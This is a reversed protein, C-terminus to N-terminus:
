ICLIAFTIPLIYKHCTLHTQSAFQLTTHFITSYSNYYHMLEPISQDLLYYQISQFTKFITRPAGPMDYTAVLGPSPMVSSHTQTTLRHRIFDSQLLTRGRNTISLERMVTWCESLQAWKRTSYGHSQM